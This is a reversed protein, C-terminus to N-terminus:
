RVIFIIFCSDRLPTCFIYQHSHTHTHTHTLTCLLHTHSHTLATYKGRKKKCRFTFNLYASPLTLSVPINKSAIRQHIVQLVQAMCIYVSLRGDLYMAILAGRSICTLFYIFTVVDFVLSSSFNSRWCPVAM